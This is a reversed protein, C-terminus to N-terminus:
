RYEESLQWEYIMRQLEDIVDFTFTKEPISYLMTLAQTHENNLLLWMTLDIKRALFELYDRVLNTM